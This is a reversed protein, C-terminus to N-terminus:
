VVVRKKTNLPAINFDKFIQSYDQINFNLQANSKKKYIGDVFINLNRLADIFIKTTCSKGRFFIAM